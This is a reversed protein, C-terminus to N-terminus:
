HSIIKSNEIIPNGIGKGITEARVFGMDGSDVMVRYWKNDPTYGTIRVTHGLSLKILTDFDESPGYKVDVNKKLHVLKSNDDYNVPINMIKSIVVDNYTQSGNNYEVTQFYTIEERKNFLKDLEAPTLVTSAMSFLLGLGFIVPMILQILKLKAYNWVPYRLKDARFGTLRIFKDLMNKQKDDAYAKAQMASVCAKDNKGEQYYAIANHMLLLLNKDNNHAITKYNFAIAKINLIFAKPNWWGLLWNSVTTKIILAPAEAYSCVDDDQSFKYKFIQGIVKQQSITRVFPNENEARDKYIALSTMDPFNHTNYVQSLMDYFLRSTTDQLVDYAVSLKQFKELADANKNHDPHWLKARERYSQKIEAESAHPQLDMIKYYGLPDRMTM